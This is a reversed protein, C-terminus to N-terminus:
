KGKAYEAVIRYPIGRESCFGGIEEFNMYNLDELFQPRGSNTLQSLFNSM